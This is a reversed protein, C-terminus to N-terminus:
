LIKKKIIEYIMKKRFYPMHEQTFNFKAQRTLYEAYTCAFVGCDSCNNQRPIDRRDTTKWNEHGFEQKRKDLSEQKLYELLTDCCGNSGGGMSDFYSITRQTFDIFALCWHNGLHVPVLVFDHSFLDVKRTWRKVTSYGSTRLKPYFFTNFAYVKKRGYNKGRLVLLNMYANMIEDNLWNLGLLTQIDKRLIQVGDLEVLAEESPYPNSASKIEVLMEPTLEPFKDTPFYKRDQLKLSLLRERINKVSDISSILKPPEKEVILKSEMRVRHLRAELARKDLDRQQLQDAALSIQAEFSDLDDKTVRYKKFNEEFITYTDPLKVEEPTKIPILQKYLSNCGLKFRPESLPQMPRAYSLKYQQRQPQPQAKGVPNLTNGM